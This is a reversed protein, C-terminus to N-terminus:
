KTIDESVKIPIVMSVIVSNKLEFAQEEKLLWKVNLKLIQLHLFM